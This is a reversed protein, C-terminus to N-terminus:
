LMRELTLNQGRLIFLVTEHARLHTYSVPGKDILRGSEPEHFGARTMVSAEFHSKRTLTKLATLALHGSVRIVALGSVGHATSLAYITM